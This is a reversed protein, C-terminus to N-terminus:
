QGPSQQPGALLVVVRAWTKMAEEESVDDDVVAAEEVPAAEVPEKAEKAEFHDIVEYPDDVEVKSVFLKLPKKSGADRLRLCEGLEEDSTILCLDDEDDLYRLRFEDGHHTAAVQPTVCISCSTKRQHSVQHLRDFAGPQQADFRFRRIDKGHVLKIILTTASM